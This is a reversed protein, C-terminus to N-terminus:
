RDVLIWARFRDDDLIEASLGHSVILARIAEPSYFRSGMFAMKEVFAVLKVVFRHINPEEIVLRGGPKLVRLLEDLSKEQDRFHHFSDVVLVREFSNDSFPLHESQARVLHLHGKDQAQKLMEQSTDCIVLHEVLHRLTLSVRGTGGGADLMWGTAPLKLLAKLRTTDPLGILRDYVSALLDFHNFM